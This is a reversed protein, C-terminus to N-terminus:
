PLSGSHEWGGSLDARCLRVAMDCNACGTRDAFQCRRILDAVNIGGIGVFWAHWFGNRLGRKIMEITIAGVPVSLSFGLLIYSLLDSIM